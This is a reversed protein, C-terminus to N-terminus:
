SEIRGYINQDHYQGNLFEAQKLCGELTFGNRLAVQNSAKNTVISKIVFRRVRGESVFKAIVAEITASIIGLGQMKEDLWYGIYATKNAPEILNFSFVGVMENHYFILYMKTYHRHHLLYNAMLTKRTDESTTVYRPWDMAAQLWAQNRKVLTFLSESFKENVSHLYIDDNVEIIEDSWQSQTLSSENKTETM